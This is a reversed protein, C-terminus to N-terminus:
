TIEGVKNEEMIDHLEALTPRRSRNRYGEPFPELFFHDLRPLAEVTNQGFTSYSEKSMLITHGNTIGSETTSENDIDGRSDCRGSKRCHFTPPSSSSPSQPASQLTMMTQPQSACGLSPYAPTHPCSESMTQVATPAVSTRPDNKRDKDFNSSSSNPNKTIDTTMSPFAANTRLPTTKDDRKVVPRPVETSCSNNSNTPTSCSSPINYNNSSMSQSTTPTGRGFTAPTASTPVKTPTFGSNTRTSSSHGAKFSDVRDIKFRRKSLDTAAVQGGDDGRSHKKQPQQQPTHPKSPTSSSIGNYINEEHVTSVSSPPHYLDPRNPTSNQPHTIHSPPNINSNSNSSNVLDSLRSHVEDPNVGHPYSSSSRGDRYPDM